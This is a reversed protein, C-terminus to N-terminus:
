ILQYYYYQGGSKMWMPTDLDTRSWAYQRLVEDSNLVDFEAILKFGDYVFKTHKILTNNNFEKKEFCLFHNTSSIGLIEGVKFDNFNLIDIASLINNEKM